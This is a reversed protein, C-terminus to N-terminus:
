AAPQCATPAGMFASKSGYADSIRGEDINGTLSVGHVVVTAEKGSAAPVVTPAPSTAGGTDKRAFELVLREYNKKPHKRWRSSKM